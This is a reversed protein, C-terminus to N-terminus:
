AGGSALGGSREWRLGGVPRGPRKCWADGLLNGAKPHPIAVHRIQAISMAPSAGALHCGQRSSRGALRKGPSRRGPRMTPCSGADSPDPPSCGVGQHIPENFVEAGEYQAVAQRCQRLPAAGDLRRASPLATAGGGQSLLGGVGSHRAPDTRDDGAMHAAGEEAHAKPHARSM